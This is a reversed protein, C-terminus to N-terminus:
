ARFYAKLEIPADPPLTSLLPLISVNKAFRAFETKTAECLTPNGVLVFNDASLDAQIKRAINFVFYARDSVTRVDFTNILILRSNEYVVVDINQRRVITYFTHTSIQKRKEKSFLGLLPALASSIQLNSFTSVLSKHVVEPVGFLLNVNDAPAVDYYVATPKRCSFCSQYLAEADADHFDKIPVPIVRTNYLVRVPDALSGSQAIKDALLELNQTFPVKPNLEISEVVDPQLQGAVQRAM